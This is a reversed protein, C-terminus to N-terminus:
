AHLVWAGKHNNRAVSTVMDPLEVYEDATRNWMFVSRDAFFYVNGDAQVMHHKAIPRPTNLDPRSSWRGTTRDYEEVSNSNGGM